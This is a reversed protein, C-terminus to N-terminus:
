RGSPLPAPTGGPRRVYDALNDYHWAEVLKGAALRHLMIGEVTEEQGYPEIHRIVRMIPHFPTHDHFTDAFYHNVVAMNGQMLEHWDDEALRRVLAMNAETSM